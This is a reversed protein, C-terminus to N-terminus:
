ITKRRFFQYRMDCVTYRGHYMDRDAKIKKRPKDCRYDRCIAPRVEYILCKKETDSRFPCTVDIMPEATPYRHIQERIGHKKVYRKITRIEEDSVPLFNGCCSGCNSCQGDITCDTWGAEMEKELQLLQALGEM